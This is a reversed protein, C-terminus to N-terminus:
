NSTKNARFVKQDSKENVPGRFLPDIKESDLKKAQQEYPSGLVYFVTDWTGILIKKIYHIIITLTKKM